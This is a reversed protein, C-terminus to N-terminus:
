GRASVLALASLAWVCNALTDSLMLPRAFVPLRSSCRSDLTWVDGRTDLTGFFRLLDIEDDGMDFDDFFCAPDITKLSSESTSSSPLSDTLFRPRFASAHPFLAPTTSCNLSLIAARRSTSPLCPCFACSSFERHLLPTRPLSKSPLARIRGRIADGSIRM